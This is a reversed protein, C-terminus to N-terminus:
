GFLYANVVTIGDDKSITGNFLYDNVAQVAGDKEVKGTTPDRYADTIDTYVLVTATGSVRDQAVTITATGTGGSRGHCRHLLAPSRVNQVTM